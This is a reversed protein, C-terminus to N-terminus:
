VSPYGSRQREREGKVAGRSESTKQSVEKGDHGGEV